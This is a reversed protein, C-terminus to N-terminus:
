LKRSAEEENSANQANQRKTHVHVKKIATGHVISERELAFFLFRIRGFGCLPIQVLNHLYPIVFDTQPRSRPLRQSVPAGEPCPEPWHYHNVFLWLSRDEDALLQLAPFNLIGTSTAPAIHIRGSLPVRTAPLDSIHM